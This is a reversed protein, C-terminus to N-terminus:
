KGVSLRTLISARLTKKANAIASKETNGLGLVHGSPRAVIMVQYGRGTRHPVHQILAAHQRGHLTLFLPKGREQSTAPPPGSMDVGCRHCNDQNDRAHLGSACKSKPQQRTPAKAASFQRQLRTYLTDLISM